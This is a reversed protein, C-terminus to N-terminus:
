ANRKFVPRPKPGELVVRDVDATISEFATILLSYDHNTWSLKPFLVPGLLIRHRKYAEQMYRAYTEGDDHDRFVIRTGYGQVVLRGATIFELKKMFDHSMDWFMKLREPTVQSMVKQAARLASTEGAFTGSVFVGETDLIESPGIV